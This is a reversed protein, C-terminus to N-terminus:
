GLHSHHEEMGLVDCVYLKWCSNFLPDLGCYEVPLASSLETTMLASYCVNVGSVSICDVVLL